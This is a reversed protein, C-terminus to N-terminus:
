KESLTASVNMRMAQWAPIFAALIGVGLTVLLLGGEAPILSSAFQQNFDHQAEHNIFHLALRSLGWGLAYGIVALLIGEAILLGFLQGRKYGVTRLLAMEYKREKLRNYLVFFVSFGAMLMIGGAILQLTSVGVGIMYFLRNIELAPLVAQMNTNDNILRPMTLVSMKSKYKLLIATIDMSDANMEIPEHDGHDHGKHDDHDHGEHDDHDHGEHDDHDHGKHDDHNHGEHDDHDHGEHDDHDHGEHDGHDHGEHDGHDHGEHDGHDHGSHDHDHDHDHDHNHDFDLTTAHISDIASMKKPPHPDHVQWVSAVNTLVLNDLVCNAKELIGVVTYAFEEHVHGGDKVEGHTGYFNDGIKLGTRQAVDAGLTAEMNQSFVRGTQIATEYKDIYAETTGLIRYGQYSDGYALPIAEKVMPNDMVKKAEILPINGTPADLHYIASLVLQLPSGKAGVVLDTGKLDRKFKQELQHEMLLLLTIIGVGFTLLSICLATNLPKYTINKWAIKAIM